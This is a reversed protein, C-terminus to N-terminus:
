RLLTKRRDKPRRATNIQQLESYRRGSYDGSYTLWNQPSRTAHDLQESSVQARSTRVLACVLILAFLISRMKM